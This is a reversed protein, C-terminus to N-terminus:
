VPLSMIVANVAIREQAAVAQAKLWSPQVAGAMVTPPVAPAGAQPM